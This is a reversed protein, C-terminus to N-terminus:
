LYNKFLNKKIEIRQNYKARDVEEWFVKSIFYLVCSLFLFLLVFCCLILYTHGRKQSLIPFSLVTEMQVLQRFLRTKTTRENYLEQGYLFSLRRSFTKM